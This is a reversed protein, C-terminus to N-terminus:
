SCSDEDEPPRDKYREQRLKMLKKRADVLEKEKRLIEEQAQIEQLVIFITECLNINDFYNDLM